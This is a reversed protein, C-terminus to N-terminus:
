PESRISGLWKSYYKAWETIANYDKLELEYLYQRELERAPKSFYSTTALIAKSAHEFQKVAYLERVHAIGVPRNPAFRKCEILFKTKINNKNGIAVIDRGGDRTKATLEVTYGFSLFIDAIFEEFDRPSLKYLQKPNRAIEHYLQKSVDILLRRASFDNEKQSKYLFIPYINELNEIVESIKEIKENEILYISSEDIHNLIVKWTECVSDYDKRAIAQRFQEINRVIEYHHYETEWPFWDPSEIDDFDGYRESDVIYQEIKQLKALEIEVRKLHEDPDYDEELDNDNEDNSELIETSIKQLSEWTELLSKNLKTASNNRYM